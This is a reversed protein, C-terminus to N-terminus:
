WTKILEAGCHPCDIEIIGTADWSDVWIHDKCTPCVFSATGSLVCDHECPTGAKCSECLHKASAETGTMGRVAM